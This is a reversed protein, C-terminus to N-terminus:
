SGLVTGDWQNAPQYISVWATVYLGTTLSLKGPRHFVVLPYSTSGQDIGTNPYSASPAGASNGTLGYAKGSILSNATGGNIVMEFVGLQPVPIIMCDTDGATADGILLGAVCAGSYATPCRLLLNPATPPTGGSHFYVLHYSPIDYAGCTYPGDAKYNKGALRVVSKYQAM